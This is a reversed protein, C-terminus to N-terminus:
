ITLYKAMASNPHGRQNAVKHHCASFKKRKSIGGEVDHVAEMNNLVEIFGLLKEAFHTSNWFSENEDLAGMIKGVIGFGLIMFVVEVGGPEMSSQFTDRMFNCHCFNQIEIRIFNPNFDQYRM